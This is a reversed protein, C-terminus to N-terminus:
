LREANQTYRKAADDDRRAQDIEAGFNQSYMLIKRLMFRPKYAADFSMEFVREAYNEDARPCKKRQNGGIQDTVKGPRGSDIVPFENECNKNALCNKARKVDVDASRKDVEKVLLIKAGSSRAM